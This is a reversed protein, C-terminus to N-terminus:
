GWTTIAMAREIRGLNRGCDNQSVRYIGRNKPPRNSTLYGNLFFRRFESLINREDRKFNVIYDAITSGENLVKGGIRRVLCRNSIMRFPSSSQSKSQICQRLEDPHVKTSQSSRLLGLLSSEPRFALLASISDVRLTTRLSQFSDTRVAILSMRQHSVHGCRVLRGSPLREMGWQM